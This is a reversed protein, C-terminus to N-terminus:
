LMTRKRLHNVIGALAALGICIIGCWQLINLLWSEPPKLKLIKFVYHMSAARAIIFAVLLVIGCFALWRQLSIGRNMWGIFVLIILSATALATVFSMQINRRQFYLGHRKALERGIDELLVHLDLQKNIGMVLLGVALSWWFVRHGRVPEACRAYALCLLATFIYISTAMWGATTPDNFGLKWEGYAMIVSTLM